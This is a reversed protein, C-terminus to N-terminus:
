ERDGAGWAAEHEVWEPAGGVRRLVDLARERCESCPAHEYAFLLLPMCAPESIRDAIEIVNMLMGHREVLDDPLCLADIVKQTDEPRVSMRLLNLSGEALREPALRRLGLWRPRNEDRAGLALYAAQRVSRDPHDILQLVPDTFKRIGVQQFISLMRRLELPSEADEIARVLKFLEDQQACLVWSRLWTLNEYGSEPLPTTRIWDLVRGVGWLRGEMGPDPSVSTVPDRKLAELYTDVDADELRAGELVRQAAGEGHAEDYVNLFWDEGRIDPHDAAYRGLGSCVQVLGAEGDVEIIDLVGPLREGERHEEFITYLARRAEADGRGALVGLITCRQGLHDGSEMPDPDDLVQELFTRRISDSRGSADILGVIWEGRCGEVQRDFALDHLAAHALLDADEDSCGAVVHM